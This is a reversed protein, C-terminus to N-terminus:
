LYLIERGDKEKKLSTDVNYLADIVETISSDGNKKYLNAVELLIEEKAEKLLRKELVTREDSKKTLIDKLGKNELISNMLKRSKLTKNIELYEDVNLGLAEAKLLDNKLHNKKTQLSRIKAKGLNIMKLVSVSSKNREKKKDRFDNKLKNIDEESLHELNEFAEKQSSVIKKMEEELENFRKVYDQIIGKVKDLDSDISKIETLLYDNINTKDKIDKELREIKQFALNLIKEQDNENSYEISDRLKEIEKLNDKLELDNTNDKMHVEYRTDQDDVGSFIIDYNNINSVPYGLKLLEEKVIELPERGKLDEQKLVGELIPKYDESM